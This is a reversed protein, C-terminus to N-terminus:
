GFDEELELMDVHKASLIEGDRIRLDYIGYGWGTSALGTYKEVTGFPLSTGLNIGVIKRGRESPFGDDHGYKTQPVVANVHTHGMVFSRVCKNAMLLMNDGGVERGMKNLWCHVFDIDALTVCRGFPSTRWRYRAFVQELRMPMDANLKPQKNAARITRFEHNGHTQYVPISDIPFDRHFAALSEELSDLEDPFSPREADAQSGPLEHSSLSDMNCWDGISVVYDPRREAIYRGIHTARTKDRGPRDHHDGIAVIRTIPGEDVHARSLAQVRYRPKELPNGHPNGPPNRPVTAREKDLWRKLTTRHIGLLEAARTFQRKPAEQRAQYLARKRSAIDAASLPPTPM